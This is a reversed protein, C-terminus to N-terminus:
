SDLWRERMALSLVSLNRNTLSLRRGYRDTSLTQTVMIQEEVIWYMFDAHQQKVEFYVYVSFTRVEQSHLHRLKTRWHFKFSESSKM